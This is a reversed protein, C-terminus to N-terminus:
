EISGSIVRLQLLENSCTVIEILASQTDQWELRLLSPEGSEVNWHGERTVFSDAPGGVRSVFRTGSEFELVHRPARSLPLQWGSPRYARAHEVDEERSHAWRGFLCSLTPSMEIEM